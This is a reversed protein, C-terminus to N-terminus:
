LTMCCSGMCSYHSVYLYRIPGKKYMSKKRDLRKVLVVQPAGALRAKKASKSATANGTARVAVVDSTM